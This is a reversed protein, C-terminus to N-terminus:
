PTLMSTVMTKLPTTMTKNDVKGNGRGVGNGEDGSDGTNGRDGGSLVTCRLLQNSAFPLPCLRVAFDFVLFRRETLCHESVTTQQIHLRGM